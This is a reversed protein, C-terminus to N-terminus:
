AAVPEVLRCLRRENAPPTTDVAPRRWRTESARECRAPVVCQLSPALSRREHRENERKARVPATPEISPYKRDGRADGKIMELLKTRWRGRQSALNTARSGGLWKVSRTFALPNGKLGRLRHYPVGAKYRSKDRPSLRPWDFAATSTDRTHM